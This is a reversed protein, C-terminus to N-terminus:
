VPTHALTGVADNWVSAATTGTAYVFRLTTTNWVNKTLYKGTTNIANTISNLETTTAYSIGGAAIGDLKAAYTSTMYGNVSATAAAMSIAPTTTGTAVSIPATGTVSTVTGNYSNFTNWDVATLYGDVTTNAEPISITVDITGTLYLPSNATLTSIVSASDAPVYGLSYVTKSYRPNEPM